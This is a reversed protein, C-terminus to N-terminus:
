RGKPTIDGGNFEIHILIVNRVNYCYSIFITFNVVVCFTFFQGQPLPITVKSM